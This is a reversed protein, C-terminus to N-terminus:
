KSSLKDLIPVIHYNVMTYINEKVFKKVIQKNSIDINSNKLMAIIANELHFEFTNNDMINDM